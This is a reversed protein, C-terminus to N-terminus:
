YKRKEKYKELINNSKIGDVVFWRGGLEQTELEDKLQTIRGPSLGKHKAYASPTMIKIKTM